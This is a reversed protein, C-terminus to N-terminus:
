QPYHIVMSLQVLETGSNQYRHPVDAKFRISSGRKVLYETEGVTITVVGAFVTIFEQTGRPHPEASIESGQDMELTYMEFRRSAEFPFVPYNRARGGDELLPELEGQHVLETDAEPRSMLTTFSVKLGNSIKWVTSITPNVEGGSSKAWCAKVLM